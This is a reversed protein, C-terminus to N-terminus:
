HVKEGMSNGEAIRLKPKVASEQGHTLGPCFYSIRTLEADGWSRSWTREHPFTAMLL